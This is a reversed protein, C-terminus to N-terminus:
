DASGVGPAVAVVRIGSRGWELALDRTLKAIGAKAAGAHVQMPTPVDAQTATISVIVGGQKALHQFAARCADELKEWLASHEPLVDEMGRVAQLKKGPDGAVSM